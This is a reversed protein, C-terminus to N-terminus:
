AHFREGGLGEQVRAQAGGIGPVGNELVQHPHQALGEGLPSLASLSLAFLIQPNPRSLLLQLFATCSALPPLWPFTSFYGQGVARRHNLFDGQRVAMRHYFPAAGSFLRISGIGRLDGCDRKDEPAPKRLLCEIKLQIYAYWMKVAFLGRARKGCPGVPFARSLRPIVQIM